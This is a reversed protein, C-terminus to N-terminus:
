GVGLGGTAAVVHAAKFGSKATLAVPGQALLLGATAFAGLQLTEFYKESSRLAGNYSKSKMKSGGIISTRETCLGM